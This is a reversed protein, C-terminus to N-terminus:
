KYTSYLDLYIRKMVLYISGLWLQWSIEFVSSMIVRSIENIDAPTVYISLLLITLDSGHNYFTHTIFLCVTVNMPGLFFAAM